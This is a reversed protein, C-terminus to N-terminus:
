ALQPHLLLPHMIRSHIFAYTGPTRHRIRLLPELRRLLLILRHLRHQLQPHPRRRAYRLLHLLAAHLVHLLHVLLIEQRGV